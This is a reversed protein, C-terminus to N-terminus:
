LYNPHPLKLIMAMSSMVCFYICGCAALTKTLGTDGSNLLYVGEKLDYTFSAM